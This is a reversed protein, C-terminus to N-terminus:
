LPVRRGEQFHFLFNHEKKERESTLFTECCYCKRCSFDGENEEFLVKYFWNNSNIEHFLEYHRKLFNQDEFQVACYLCRM